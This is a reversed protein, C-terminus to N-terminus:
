RRERRRLWFVLGVLALVTGGGAVQLVKMVALSYQGTEPNFRFCRLLVQDVPSGLQGNGADLLALKLDSSQPRLGFLYRSIRGGPSVVVMGAPHAYRDREADYVYQFGIAEALTDIARKGGTLLHWNDLTVGHLRSLRDRMRRADAPGEAPAISVVVVRYDDTAFPLGSTAIAVQDLVLSCLNPCNLWAMILVLPRDETLTGLRVPDGNADLFRLEGPLTKGIHQEFAIADLIQRQTAYGAADPAFSAALWAVILPLIFRHRIM